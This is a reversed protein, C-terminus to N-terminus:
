EFKIEEVLKMGRSKFIPVVSGILTVLIGMGGAALFTSANLKPMMAIKPGAVLFITQIEMYSVFVAVVAGILGASFGEILTMKVNQRNSLGVSKYM